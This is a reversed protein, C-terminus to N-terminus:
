LYVVFNRPRLIRVAPEGYFLEYESYVRLLAHMKYGNDIDQPHILVAKTNM